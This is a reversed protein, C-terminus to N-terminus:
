YEKVPVIAGSKNRRFIGLEAICERIQETRLIPGDKCVLYKDISCSGCLGIGCLMSRELGFQVPIRRAEADQFISRLEIEGLGAYVSDFKGEKILKETVESAKGAMGESGDSTVALVRCLKSLEDYFILGDKSKAHLVFTASLKKSKIRKALALLPSLGSGSGILLSNEGTISYPNGYPGRLWIRDGEKMSCLATTGASYPWVTISCIDGIRSLNMPIEEVNPLWVMVFNGPSAQSCMRDQFYLSKVSGKETKVEVIRVARPKSVLTHSDWM